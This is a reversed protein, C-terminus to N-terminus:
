NNLYRPCLPTKLFKKGKISCFGFIYECRRDLHRNSRRHLRTSFRMTDSSTNNNQPERAKIDCTTSLHYYSTHRKCRRVATDMTNGGGFGIDINGDPSM